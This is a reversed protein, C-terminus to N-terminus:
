EKHRAVLILSAIRPAMAIAIFSVVFGFNGLTKVIEM